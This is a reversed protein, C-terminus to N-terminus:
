DDVVYIYEPCVMLISENSVNKSLWDVIEAEEGCHRSILVPM